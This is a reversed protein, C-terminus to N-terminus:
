FRLVLDFTVAAIINTFRLVTVAKVQVSSEDVGSVKKEPLVPTPKPEKIGARAWRTSKSIPSARARHLKAVEVEPEPPIYSVPPFGKSEENRETQSRNIGV